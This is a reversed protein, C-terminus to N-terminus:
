GPRRTLEAELLKALARQEDGSLEDVAREATGPAPELAPVDEGADISEGALATVLDWSGEGEGPALDGDHAASVGSAAAAPPSTVAPPAPLPSRGNPWVAVALLLVAAAAVGTMVRWTLFAPMWWRTRVEPEQRIAESVRASFHDWFLPSPEPVRDARALAVAANISALQERCAPCAEAHARAAASPCGDALDMLEDATVHGRRTM